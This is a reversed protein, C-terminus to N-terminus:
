TLVVGEGTLRASRWEDPDARLLTDVVPRPLPVGVDDHTLLTVAAQLHGQRLRELPPAGRLTAALFG